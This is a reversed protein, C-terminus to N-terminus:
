HNNMFKSTYLIFSFVVSIKYFVSHILFYYRISFYNCSNNWNTLFAEIGLFYDSFFDLIPQWIAMAWSVESGWLSVKLAWLDLIISELRLDVIIVSWMESFTVMKLSLRSFCYILNAKLHRESCSNKEVRLSSSISSIVM